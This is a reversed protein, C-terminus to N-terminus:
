IALFSEPMKLPLGSSEGEEAAKAVQAEFVVVEGTIDLYLAKARLCADAMPRYIHAFPGARHLLASAGRLHADVVGPQDLAFVRHELGLEAALAALAPGNRGALAPRHGRRAAERAVLGGTYGNAGYILFATM